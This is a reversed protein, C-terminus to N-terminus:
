TLKELKLKKQRIEIRSIKHKPNYKIENKNLLLIKQTFDIGKKETWKIFWNFFLDPKTCIIFYIDAFILKELLQVFLQVM